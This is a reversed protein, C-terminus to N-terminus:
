TEESMAPGPHLPHESWWSAFQDAIPALGPITSRKAALAMCADGGVIQDRALANVRGTTALVDDPVDGSIHAADLTAELRCVALVSEPRLKSASGDGLGRAAAVAAGLYRNALTSALASKARLEDALGFPFTLFALAAAVLAGIAVDELRVFELGPQADWEIAAFNVLIFPTFLMQATFPGISAGIVALFAMIPVLTLDAAQPLDLFLGLSALLVGAAAGAVMRIASAGNALGSFSVQTVCLAALVVWIGDQLGLLRVIMVCAAACAGTRVANRLWPSSLRAHLRLLALPREDSMSGIDPVPYRLGQSRGALWVMWMALISLLRASYQSRVDAPATNALESLDEERLAALNPVPVEPQEGRVVRGACDLAIVTQQVLVPSTNVPVPELQDIIPPSWRVVDVMEALARQRDGVAGPRMRPGSIHQLLDAGAQDLEQRAATLDRGAVLDTALAQAAQLWTALGARLRGDRYRPLVLMGATMAVLGGAAWAALLVPLESMSTAAMVPLFFACQLGVAARAVYGRLVRLYGFIGSVLFAGPLALWLSSSLLVGVTIAVMGVAVATSFGIFRERVSGDYDLFYLLVVVAFSGVAVEQGADFLRLIILDAVLMAVAFRVASRLVEPRMRARVRGALRGMADEEDASIM